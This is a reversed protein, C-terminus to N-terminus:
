MAAARDARFRELLRESAADRQVRLDPPPLPVRTDLELFALV